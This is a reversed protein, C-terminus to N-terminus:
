EVPVPTRNPNAEPTPEIEDIQQRYSDLSATM